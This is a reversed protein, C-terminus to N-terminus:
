RLYRPDNKGPLRKLSRVSSSPKNQCDSRSNERDGNKPTRPPSPSMQAFRLNENRGRAEEASADKVELKVCRRTGTVRKHKSTKLNAKSRSRKRDRSVPHRAQVRDGPPFTGGGAECCTGTAAPRGVGMYGAEDSGGEM